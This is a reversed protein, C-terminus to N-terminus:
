EDAYEKASLVIERIDVSMPCSKICRGCGCCAFVQEHLKPYYSFKHGVRNRLRQAKTPRPNHGSAEHTFLNSMCNDWTRIRKGQLGSYEDSINFCYCTPCLYTCAGCSICKAAMLEWFDLNEFLEFLKDPVEELEPAPSLNEAAEEALRDAETQQEPSADEFGGVEVIQRGQDTVPRLVYGGGAPLMLVDSGASDAPGGGVWNCFCTNEPHRCALSVFVTHERRAQYYPDLYEGQGFVPDFVSFGRAGCPRCGLIVTKEKGPLTEKIQLTQRDPHEPDKQYEFRMLTETQPFVSKKPPATPQRDLSLESGEAFPLFEVADGAQQPVLVTHERSLEEVWRSLGEKPCFKLDGM